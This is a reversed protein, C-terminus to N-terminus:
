PQGPAPPPVPMSPGESQQFSQSNCSSTVCAILFAILAVAVPMTLIYRRIRPRPMSEEGAFRITSNLSRQPATYGRRALSHSLRSARAVHTPLRARRERRPNRPTGLGEDARDNGQAGRSLERS